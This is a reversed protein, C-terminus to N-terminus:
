QHETEDAAEADAARRNEPRDVDRLKGRCLPSAPPRPHNLNMNNNTNEKSKRMMSYPIGRLERQSTVFFLVSSASSTSFIIPDGSESASSRSIMSEMWMSRPM